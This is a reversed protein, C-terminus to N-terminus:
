LPSTGVDSAVPPTPVPLPDPVPEDPPLDDDNPPLDPQADDFISDVDDRGDPPGLLLRVGLDFAKLPHDESHQVSSSM